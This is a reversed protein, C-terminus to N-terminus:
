FTGPYNWWLATAARLECTMNWRTHDKTEDVTYDSWESTDFTGDDQYDEEIAECDDVMGLMLSKVLQSGEM